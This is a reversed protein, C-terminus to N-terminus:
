LICFSPIQMQQAGVTHWTSLQCMRNENVQGGGGDSITIREMKCIFFCTMSPCNIGLSATSSRAETFKLEEFLSPLATTSPIFEPDWIVQESCLRIM